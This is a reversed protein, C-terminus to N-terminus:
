KAGKEQKVGKHLICNDEYYDFDWQKCYCFKGNPDNEVYIPHDEATKKRWNCVQSCWCLCNPENLCEEKTVCRCHQGKDGGCSTLAVLVLLFIAIQKAFM